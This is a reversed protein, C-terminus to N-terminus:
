PATGAAPEPKDIPDFVVDVPLGIADAIAREVQANRRTGWMVMSVYQSTFGVAPALKTPTVDRETLAAKRQLPTFAM